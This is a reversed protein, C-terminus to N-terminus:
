YRSGSKNTLIRDMPQAVAAIIDAAAIPINTVQHFQSPRLGTPVFHKYTKRSLCEYAGYSSLTNRPQSTWRSFCTAGASITMANVGPAIFM